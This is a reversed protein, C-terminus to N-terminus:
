TGFGPRRELLEPRALALVFLPFRATELAHDLFDLLGDDAYQLDEILLVLGDQDTCVREFFVTWAAFLDERPFVRSETGLLVGIRPAVWSRETEDPLWEALRVELTAVDETDGEALQLRSRVMEALAWFAVGEGYSLARGRHW